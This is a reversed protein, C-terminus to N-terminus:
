CNQLPWYVTEQPHAGILALAIKEELPLAGFICTLLTWLLVEPGFQGIALTVLRELNVLATKRHFCLLLASFGRKRVVQALTM